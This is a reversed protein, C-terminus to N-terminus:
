SFSDFFETKLVRHRYLFANYRMQEVFVSVYYGKSLGAGSLGCGKAQRYKLAQVRLKVLGL